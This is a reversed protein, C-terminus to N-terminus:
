SATQLQVGVFAPCEYANCVPCKPCTLAHLHMAANRQVAIGLLIHLCGNQRLDVAALALISRGDLRGMYRSTHWAHTCM